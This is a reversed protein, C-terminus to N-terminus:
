PKKTSLKAAFSSSFYCIFIMPTFIRHSLCRFVHFVIIFIVLNDNSQGVFSCGTHHGMPVFPCSLLELLALRRIIPHTTKQVRALLLHNLTSQLEKSGTRSWDRAEIKSCWSVMCSIARRMVRRQDHM